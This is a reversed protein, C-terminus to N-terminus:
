DILKYSILVNGYTSLKVRQNTLFEVTKKIDVLIKREMVLEDHKFSAVEFIFARCEVGDKEETKDLVKLFNGVANEKLGRQMESLLKAYANIPRFVMSFFYLSGCGFFATLAISIICFATAIERTVCLFLTLLIALVVALAVFYIILYKKKKSVTNKIDAASYIETM